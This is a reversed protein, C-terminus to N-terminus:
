FQRQFRIIVDIKEIVSTSHSFVFVTKSFQRQFSHFFAYKLVNTRTKRKKKKKDKGKREEFKQYIGVVVLTEFNVM